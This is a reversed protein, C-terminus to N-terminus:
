DESEAKDEEADAEDDGAANEESVLGAPAAITAITFDRDTITSSAGAPLKVHSIHIGDGIELGTLDVEISDPINEASVTLEVEHRVVNLVGGRKLGPSEEENVFHVPVEVNLTSGKKIRLFDVHLVFDKVPDLQVDRPIVRQVKGDVELDLLHSTFAGKNWLNNVKHYDVSILDPTKKDGYIVAPVRGERRLARAVGKGARDRAQATLKINEAM